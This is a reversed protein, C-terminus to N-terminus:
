DQAPPLTRDHPSVRAAAASEIGFTARPSVIWRQTAAATRSRRAHGSLLTAAAELSTQGSAPRGWRFLLRDQHDHDSHVNVLLRHGSDRDIIGAPRQGLRRDLHSTFPQESPRGRKAPLPQPRDLVAALERAPELPLQEADAFVQHPHRRLQGDRLTPGSPRAPLGVRNVRERDRTRRQPLRVQAPRSRVLLAIPLHLQKDIMAVVKDVLASSGLLPKAPVQVLEVRGVDQWQPHEAAGGVQFAEAAPQGPALLLELHPERPLEDRAAAREVAGDGFEVLLEFLPDFLVCGPQELQGAAAATM